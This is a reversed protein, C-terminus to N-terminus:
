TSDHTDSAATWLPYKRMIEAFRGSNLHRTLWAQVAPWDQAAFWDRDTHAYQRIFPFIAHDAFGDHEGDLSASRKLRAELESVFEAAATRHADPDAGDYRTAYKYRDLHPKFETDCAHALALAAAENRLWAEPDHRRLAWLMIDLSEDIVTRDPLVLIPITGKPSADLMAAPKDRLLIERHEIEIEAVHLSLRARMAYPCRRFSWLIPRDTSM